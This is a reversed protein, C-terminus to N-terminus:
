EKNFIKCKGEFPCNKCSPSKSKCIYRGFYVLRHALGVDIYGDFYKYLKEEITRVDDNEEAIELRKSVRNVHTDVAIFPENYLVNLLVNVSKRGLGPISELFNRDNPVYGYILLNKTIEKFYKAKTKYLGISCILKEIERISLNNLKDLSDYKKYIDKMVENVRKDTTQASLMVSIALEYDKNFELECKPNPFLKDLNEKVYKPNM